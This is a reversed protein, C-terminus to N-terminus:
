EHHTHGGQDGHILKLARPDTKNELLYKVLPDNMKLWEIQDKFIYILMRDMRNPKTLLLWVLILALSYAVLACTRGRTVDIYLGCVWIGGRGLLCSVGAFLVTALGTAGLIGSVLWVYVVCYYLAGRVIVVEHFTQPLFNNLIYLYLRIHEDPKLEVEPRNLEDALKRSRSRLYDSPQEKRYVTRKNPYNWSYFIFGFALGLMISPFSESLEPSHAGLIRLYVYVLALFYYGPIIIRLTENLGFSAKSVPEM